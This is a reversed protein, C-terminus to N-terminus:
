CFKIYFCLVAPQLPISYQQITDYQIGSGCHGKESTKNGEAM